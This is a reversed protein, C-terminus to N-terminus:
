HTVRRGKNDNGNDQKPKPGSKIAEMTTKSFFKIQDKYARIYRM